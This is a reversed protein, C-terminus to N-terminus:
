SPHRSTVHDRVEVKLEKRKIGSVVIQSRKWSKDPNLMLYRSRIFVHEFVWNSVPRSKCRCTVWERGHAQCGAQRNILNLTRLTCQDYRTNNRCSCLKASSVNLINPSEKGGLKVSYTIEASGYVAEIAGELCYYRHWGMRRIKATRKVAEPIKRLDLSLTGIHQTSGDLHIPAKGDDNNSYIDIETQPM